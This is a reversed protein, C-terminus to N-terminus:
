DNRMQIFDGYPGIIGYRRYEVTVVTQGNILVADLDAKVRSYERHWSIFKDIGYSNLGMVFHLDSLGVMDEGNDYYENVENVAANIANVDSYFLRGTLVECCLQNGKGTHEIMNEDTCEALAQEVKSIKQNQEVADVKKPSITKDISDRLETYAADSLSYAAMAAALRRDSEKMGYHIAVASATAAAAIPLAKKAVKKYDKEKIGDHIDASNKYTLGISVLFGGIGAYGAIKPAHKITFAGVRKAILSWQTKTISIM